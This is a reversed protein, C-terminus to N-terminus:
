LLINSYQLINNNFENEIEGNLGCQFWIINFQSKYSSSVKSDYELISGIIERVIQKGFSM